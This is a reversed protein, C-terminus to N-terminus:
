KDRQKKARRHGALFLFYFSGVGAFTGWVAWNMVVGSTVM